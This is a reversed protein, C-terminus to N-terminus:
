FNRIRNKRNLIESLIVADRFSEKDKLLKKIRSAAKNKYINENTQLLNDSNLIRSKDKELKSTDINAYKNFSASYDAENYNVKEFDAPHELNDYHDYKKNQYIPENDSDANDNKEIGFIDELTIGGNNNKQPSKRKTEKSKKKESSFISSLISIIIFIIFLFDGLSDM